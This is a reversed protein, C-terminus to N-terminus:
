PRHEGESYGREHFEFEVKNEQREQGHRQSGAHTGRPPHLPKVRGQQFGFLTTQTSPFLRCRQSKHPKSGPHNQLACLEHSEGVRMHGCLAIKGQSVSNVLIM